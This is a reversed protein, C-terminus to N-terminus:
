RVVVFADLDVRARGPTGVVVIRITRKASTSWTKAWAVTRCGYVSRYLDLTALRTGNVYVRVKGRTPATTTVFAIGRGTFTYSASAGAQMAARVAGGSFHDSTARRWTGSYRIASSSEQVLSYSRRATRPSAAAHGVADRAVVRLTWSTGTQAWVTRGTSATRGLDYWSFASDWSPFGQVTYAPSALGSGADSSGAWTVALPVRTGQLARGVALRVSPRGPATPQDTDTGPPGIGVVPLPGDTPGSDIGMGLKGAWNAGWCLASGDATVACSTNGSSALSRVDGLGPVASPRPDV